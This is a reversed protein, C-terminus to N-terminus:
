CSLSVIESPFSKGSVMTLANAIVAADEDLSLIAAGQAGSESVKPLELMTQFFSSSLRLILAYTRFRVGDSSKLVVDGEPDNFSEHYEVSLIDVSNAGTSASM